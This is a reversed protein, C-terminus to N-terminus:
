FSLESNGEPRSPGTLTRVPLHSSTFYSYEPQATLLHFYVFTHGAQELLLCHIIFINWIIGVLAAM